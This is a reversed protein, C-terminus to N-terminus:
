QTRNRVMRQKEERLAEKTARVTSAGVMRNAFEQDTAERSEDSEATNIGPVNISVWDEVFLAGEECRDNTRSCSRGGAGRGAVRACRIERRRSAKM